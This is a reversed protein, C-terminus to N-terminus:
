RWDGSLSFAAWYFPPTRPPLEPKEEEAEAMFGRKPGERLLTLQSQRFAELKGLGGDAGSWLQDYFRVMLLQTALDDVTWLSTIVTDAGALQFARQIGLVGEGGAVQGLGTECASLVVVETNDLDMESVELATLVGDNAGDDSVQNVGAFVVGSLVGPHFGGIGTSRLTMSERSQTGSRDADSQKALASHRDPSAFFGHTALHLWRNSAALQRFSEETATHRRLKKLQGDPFQLEFSDGVTVIETRTEPLEKWQGFIGSRTEAAADSGANALQADYDVDGILLMSASDDALRKDRLKPLLQPVPIIGITREEILYTNEVAGPLASMPLRCLAGDPSLLVVDSDKLQREIPMWVKDRLTVAPDDNGVIPNTRKITGRWLTM